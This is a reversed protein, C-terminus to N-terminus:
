RRRSRQNRCPKRTQGSASDSANIQLSAATGATGTQNGPNTITGALAVVEAV